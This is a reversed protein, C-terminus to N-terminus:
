HLSDLLPQVWSFIYQEVSPFHSALLSMLPLIAFSATRLYFSWDVEGAKTETLRSLIADKAMALFVWIVPVGILVFGAGLAWAILRPEGFPYSGLSLVLLVFGFMIYTLLNRLQLMVYRIFSLFRLAVFEQSLLDPIEAALDKRRQRLADKTTEETEAKKLSESSGRIWYDADLAAVAQRSTELLAQQLKKYDEYNVIEHRGVRDLVQGALSEIDRESETPERDTTRRLERLCDVSRALLIYSRRRPSDQWIPSWSFDPPLRSFAERIPHLELQELFEQLLRWCKSMRWIALCLLAATLAVFLSYARDYASGELSAFRTWCLSFALLALLSAMVAAWLRPKPFVTELSEELSSVIVGTPCIISNGRLCPVQQYREASFLRRQLHVWGWLLVSAFLFLFPLSPCVGSGIEAARYAFFFGHYHQDSTLTVVLSVSFLLFFFWAAAMIAIYYLRAGDQVRAPGQPATVVDWSLHLADFLLLGITCLALIVLLYSSIGQASMWASWVPGATLMAYAATGGLSFALLYVARAPAGPEEPKVNFDEWRLDEPHGRRPVLVYYVAFLSALLTLLLWSRPPPEPRFSVPPAGTNLLYPDPSASLFEIPWYNDHGVATLWLPPQGPNGLPAQYDYLAAPRKAEAQLISRTANYIGEEFESSFPYRHGFHGGDSQPPAFWQQRAPFLAYTTVQLTGALSPVDNARTAFVDSDFFVLRTNGASNRLFRSVFLRDLIDTAIVAAVHIREHRLTEAIALVGSEQSVPTQDAFEPVRDFSAQTDKLSLPLSPRSAMTASQTTSLAVLGPDEQYANRLYAIGRPFRFTTGEGLHSDFHSAFDTGDESLIAIKTARLTEQLFGAFADFRIEDNYSLAAYDPFMAKFDKEAAAKTATGSRVRFSRLSPAVSQDRLAAALPGLTGSFCPGDISVTANASQSATGSLERWYRLANEFQGPDFAATPSEGVLLFALHREQHRFLLLGPLTRLKKTEDEAAKHDALSTYDPGETATWPLWFDRFSYGHDQAAWTIAEISRDFQLRLQTRNPDPVFTIIVDLGHQFDPYLQCTDAKGAAPTVTRCLISYPGVEPRKPTKLLSASGAREKPASDQRATPLLIRGGVGAGLLLVAIFLNRM